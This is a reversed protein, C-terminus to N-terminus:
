SKGTPTIEIRIDGSPRENKLWAEADERSEALYLLEANDSSMKLVLATGAKPVGVLTFTFKESPFSFERNMTMLVIGNKVITKIHLVFRGREQDKSVLQGAGNENKWKTLKNVFRDPPKPEGNGFYLIAGLPVDFINFSTM